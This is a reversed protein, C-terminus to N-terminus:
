EATLFALKEGNLYETIYTGVFDSAAIVGLRMLKEDKYIDNRMIYKNLVFIMGSSIGIEAIREALTKGEYLQNNLSPMPIHKIIPYAFEAAYNGVAVAGGFYLSREVSTEKLVLQDIAIATLGVIVPKMLTQNQNM